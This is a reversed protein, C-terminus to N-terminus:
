VKPRSVKFRLHLVSNTRNHYKFVLYRADLPGAVAFKFNVQKYIHEAQHAEPELQDMRRFVSAEDVLSPEAEGEAYSLTLVGVKLPKNDEDFVGYEINAAVYTDFLIRYAYTEDGVRPVIVDTWSSTSAELDAGHYAFDTQEKLALGILRNLTDTSNETLVEINRWPFTLRNFQPQGSQPDHGVYIRGTDTMYAMEGPELGPAYTLPSLSTPAGPLDISPGARLIIQSVQIIPM